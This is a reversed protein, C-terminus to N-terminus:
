PYVVRYFRPPSSTADHFEFTGDGAVPRTTLFTFAQALNPTSQVTVSTFLVGTGKLVFTGGSQKAVQRDDRKLLPFLGLSIGM